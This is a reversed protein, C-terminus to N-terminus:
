LKSRYELKGVVGPKFAYLPGGLFVGDLMGTELNEAGQAGSTIYLTDLEDGGFMVSSTQCAPVFMEAVIVGEPSFRRVAFGNWFASWIYGAADVTMGDPLGLRGDGSYLVNRFSINGSSKDYDYATITKKGTETHYFTKEDPSFGMGNTCKMDAWLEFPEKGGEVRFMRGTGSDEPRRPLTGTYIRGMPDAIVDNFNENERMEIRFAEILKKGDFKYIGGTNALVTMTGDADFVFGGIQMNGSYYLECQMKKPDYRYIKGGFVDTYYLYGDRENWVPGEGLHAINKHVCKVGNKQPLL